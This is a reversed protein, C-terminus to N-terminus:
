STITPMVPTTMMSSAVRRAIPKPMSTVVPTNMSNTKVPGYMGSTIWCRPADSSRKMECMHSVVSPTYPTASPTDTCNMKRNTSNPVSSSM